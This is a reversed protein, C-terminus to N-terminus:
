FVSTPEQLSAQNRLSAAAFWGSLQSVVETYESQDKQKDNKGRTADEDLLKPLDTILGPHLELRLKEDKTAGEM